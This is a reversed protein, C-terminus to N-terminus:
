IDIKWLNRIEKIAEIVDIDKYLFAIWSSCLFYKDCYKRYEEKKSKNDTKLMMNGYCWGINYLTRCLSNAENYAMEIFICTKSKEISKEYQGLLGYIQSLNYLLSKYISIGSLQYFEKFYRELKEYWKLAENYNGDQHYSGGINMLLVLEQKTFFSNWEQEKIKNIDEVTLSLIDFVKKQYEENSIKEKEVQLFLEVKQIYQQNYINNMDMKEKLIEYLKEAKEEQHVSFCFDIDWRLEQIEFDEGRVSLQYREEKGDLGLTKFCHQIIEKRPERKEREIQSIGAQDVILKEGDMTEMFDEQTKGYYNRTNRIIENISYISHYPRMYEEKEQFKENELEWEGLIDILFSIKDNWVIESVIFDGKKEKLKELLQILPNLYYLSMKEVLIDLGKKCYLVSEIYNEQRYLIYALYYISKVYFKLRYWDDTCKKEIYSLLKKWYDCLESLSILEEESLVQGILCLIKLENRSVIGEIKLKNLNIQLKTKKLAEMYKELAMVRNGKKRYLIGQIMCCYQEHLNQSVDRFDTYEELEELEKEVAEWQKIQLLHEIYNRKRLLDKDNKKLIVEWKTSDKGLRSILADFLLYDPEREGSELRSLTSISCLGKSLEKQNIGQEKRLKKLILAFNESM